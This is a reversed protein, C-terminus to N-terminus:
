YTLPREACFHRRDALLEIVADDSIIPLRGPGGHRDHSRRPGNRYPTYEASLFKSSAHSEGKTNNVDRFFVATGPLPSTL